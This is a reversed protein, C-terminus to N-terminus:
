PPSPPRRAARRAAGPRRPSPRRSTRPWPRTPPATAAPEIPVELELPVSRRRRALHAGAGGREEGHGVDQEDIRLDERLRPHRGLVDRHRGREGGRDAGRQHPQPGAIRERHRRAHAEVGVEGVAHHRPEADGPLHRQRRDEDLAHQEEDEGAGARPPQHQLRDRGRDPVRRHRADPEEEREDAQVVASQHRGVRRRQDLQTIGSRRRRQEREAADQQHRHERHPANRPRNQM